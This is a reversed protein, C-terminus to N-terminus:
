GAARGAHRTAGFIEPSISTGIGDVFDLMALLLSEESLAASHRCITLLAMSVATM